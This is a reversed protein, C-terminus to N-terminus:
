ESIVVDRLMVVRSLPPTPVQKCTQFRWSRSNVDWRSPDALAKTNYFGMSCFSKGWFKNSYESFIIMIEDDSSNATISSELLSCLALKSSYQIMMSWSDAIMYYFDTESMDTECYFLGLAHSLGAPSGEITNRFASQVRKIGNSCKNGASSSVQMDFQYFDVICDVVGSSSLAGVSRDPYASRYWSALGGSYSGGFVFWPVQASMPTISKYYDTFAALDALAQEVSLHKDYNETLCNNEPISEGYFRHELTILLASYKAGLAAVYGTPPGTCTGVYFFFM